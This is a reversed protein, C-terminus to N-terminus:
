YGNEKDSVSEDTDAKITDIPCEGVYVAILVNM